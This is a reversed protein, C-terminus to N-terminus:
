RWVLSRVKIPQDDLIAVREVKYVDKASDLDCNEPFSFIKERTKNYLEYCLKYTGLGLLSAVKSYGLESLMEVKTWNIKNGDAFGLEKVNNVDWDRPYGEKFWAQSASISAKLAFNKEMAEQMEAIAFYWRALAINLVIFFIALAIFFDYTLTQAKSTSM